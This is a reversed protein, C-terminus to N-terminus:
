KTFNLYDEESNFEQWGTLCVSDLEVNVNMSLLYAEINRLVEGANPFGERTVVNWGGPRNRKKTLDWFSYQFSFFRIQEM